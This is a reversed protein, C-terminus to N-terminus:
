KCLYRRFDHVLPYTWISKIPLARLEYRDLKGRGKTMGVCRWNAARYCVGKYRTFDVFTELLVPRYAYRARWDDRLRRAVMSLIKSALNRHHIWPLILFRANNVVLHLNRARQKADWGIYDDRPQTKWASAGFSLLAIIEGGCRVFYRIQAGPLLQFGLYHYRRIYANWLASERVNAVIGIVLRANDVEPITAPPAVATEDDPREVCVIRERKATPLTILGDTQMKLMAVRCSMDKLTGNKCHWRLAECVAISLKYRSRDPVEAILVRITELDKKTFRRGCYRM